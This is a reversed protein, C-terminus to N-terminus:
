SRGRVGLSAIRRALRVDDEEKDVVHTPHVRRYVTALVVLRRIHLTQGFAAHQERLRVRGIRETRRRAGADHRALVRSPQMDRRRRTMQWGQRRARGLKGLLCRWDMLHDQRLAPSEQRRVLVRDGFCEAIRSVLRRVDALPVQAQLGLVPGLCLSEIHRKVSCGVGTRAAIERGVLELRARDGIPRVALVDGVAGRVLRNLEDVGVFLAREQQVHPVIRHMPRPPVFLFDGFAEKVLLIGAALLGIRNHGRHEPADVLAEAADHVPQVLKADGVVRDENQEGVVATVHVAVPTVVVFQCLDFRPM